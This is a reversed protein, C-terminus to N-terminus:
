STSTRTEFHKGFDKAMKSGDSHKKWALMCLHKSGIDKLRELVLKFPWHFAHFITRPAQVWLKWWGNPSSAFGAESRFVQIRNLM